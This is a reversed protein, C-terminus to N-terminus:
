GQSSTIRLSLDIARVNKTIAGSSIYDIGIDRLEALRNKTINGSVELRTKGDTVKVAEHLQENNFNDLMVIDANAEIAQKLEDITEVEVEVKKDPHLSRAKEIAAAISGCALIHNEKILYADFLGIRHNHGDGCTVAYKQAYRLGPITKRTDLLKVNSDELLEVYEATITATGSLTQLFNLATREATLISKASGTIKCLTQNEEVAEGDRVHWKVKVDPDVQRFTESAWDTGAIVCPERTIIIATAQHSDPILNATIDGVQPSQGDLDENLAATVNKSIISHAM